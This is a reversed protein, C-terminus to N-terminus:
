IFNSNSKGENDYIEQNSVPHKSAPYTDSSGKGPIKQCAGQNYHKQNWKMRNM